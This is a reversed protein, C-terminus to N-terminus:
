FDCSCFVMGTKSEIEEKGKPKRINQIITRELYTRSMFTLRFTDKQQTPEFWGLAKAKEICAQMAPTWATNTAKLYQMQLDCFTFHTKQNYM